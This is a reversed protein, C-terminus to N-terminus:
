CTNKFINNYLFYGHLHMSKVLFNQKGQHIFLIKNHDNDADMNKFLFRIISRFFKRLDRVTDLIYKSIISKLQGSAKKIEASAFKSYSYVVSAAHFLFTEDASAIYEHLSEHIVNSLRQSIISDHESLQEYTKFLQNELEDKDFAKWYIDASANKYAKVDISNDLLSWFVNGNDYVSSENYLQLRGHHPVITDPDILTCTSNTKLYQTWIKADTAGEVICTCNNVKLPWTSLPTKEDFNWEQGKKPALLRPSLRRLTSRVEGIYSFLWDSQAQAKSSVDSDTFLFIMSLGFNPSAGSYEM